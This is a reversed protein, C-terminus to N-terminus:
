NRNLITLLLRYLREPLLSCGDMDALTYPKQEIISRAAEKGSYIAPGIGEGMDLTALGLSDGVLYIKDASLKQDPAQLYYTYGEPQFERQKILGSQVLRSIHREWYKKISVKGSKLAAANAGLGINLYGGEKPVYWSYGPLGGDFFWLRCLPDHWDERYEEELSVIQSGLQVQDRFFQRKVPCSTGGAGILYEATFLDDVIFENGVQKIEKVEHQVLEAGSRRIMWEDFEVRRIAYQPGPYIVPWRGLKIKLRPFRTLTHPYDEPRTKLDRFVDPTVWGACLKPRPFTEKDLVLCNIGAEVLLKACSAGAPGGGVIIVKVSRM